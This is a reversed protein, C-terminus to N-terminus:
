GGAGFHGGPVRIYRGVMGAVRAPENPTVAGVEGRSPAAAPREHAVGHPHTGPALPAAPILGRPPQTTDAGMGM